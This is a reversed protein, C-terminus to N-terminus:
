MAGLAELLREAVQEDGANKRIIIELKTRRLIGGEHHNRLLSDVKRSHTHEVIEQARRADPCEFVSIRFVAADKKALYEVPRCGRSSEPAKQKAVIYGMKQLAWFVDTAKKLQSADAPVKPGPREPECAALSLLAAICSLSLRTWRIRM